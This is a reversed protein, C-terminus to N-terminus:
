NKKSKKPAENEVAKKELFDVSECIVQIVSKKNGDADEYTRQDLRGTIGLLHGKKVYKSVAEATAGFLTLPIFSTKDNKGDVALTCTVFTLGENGERTEPDRTIRGILTVSNM